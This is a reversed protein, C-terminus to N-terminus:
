KKTYKDPNNIIELVKGAFEDPMYDSKNWYLIGNKKCFYFLNDDQNVISYIIIPIGNSQEKELWKEILLQGTRMGMNAERVDFKKGVAMSLDMIICDPMFDINEIIELFVDASEIPIVEVGSLELEDREPQLEPYNIDDDVWLIKKNTNMTM